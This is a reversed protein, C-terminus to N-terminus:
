QPQSHVDQPLAAAAAPVAPAPEVLVRRSIGFANFSGNRSAPVRVEVSSAALLAAAEPEPERECCSEASGSRVVSTSSAAVGFPLLRLWTSTMASAARRARRPQQGVIPADTCLHHTAGSTSSASAPRATGKTCGSTEESRVYTSPTAGSRGRPASVVLENRASCSLKPTDCTKGFLIKITGSWGSSRRVRSHSSAAHLKTSLTAAFTVASIARWPREHRLGLSRGQMDASSKSPHIITPPLQVIASYSASSPALMSCLPVVYLTVSSCISLVSPASHDCISM